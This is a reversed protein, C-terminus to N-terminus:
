ELYGWLNNLSEALAPHAWVADRLLEWRVGGMMAMEVISMVEGGEVGLCTFGLILGTEADVVAKMMGRTEDTELARAVSSMPMRAVKIAATKGAARAEHEHLGVHGLQPDTYVVYPVLRNATSAKPSAPPSDLVNARIIRMDDYSVHTFAPPGKADGLVYVNPATTELFENAVIYGRANTRIGAAPLNLSESNPVRGAAFLIHTGHVVDQKGQKEITLDFSGTETSVVSSATTELHITVGDERLINLLCDAVEKDERVLLQKARQLVTVQAGLRRFLQAFEMGVYGGGVVVLHTPVVDLEQISTSDLVRTPDLSQIGALKPPAPREGTNIFIKDAQVLKESGDNMKVKLTNKAGEVFSAQGMLVDVGASHARSEGGGRFRSVIDRKRQRVKLMDVVIENQAVEHTARRHPAWGEVVGLVADTLPRDLVGLQPDAVVADVTQPEVRARATKSSARRVHEGFQGCPHVLMLGLAKTM